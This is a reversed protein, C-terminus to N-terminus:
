DGMGYYFSHLASAEISKMLNRNFYNLYECYNDYAVDPKEQFINLFESRFMNYKRRSQYLWGANLIEVMNNPDEVVNKLINEIKESSDAADIGKKISNVDMMKISGIPIRDDLEKVLLELKDEDSVKDTYKSLWSLEEVKPIIMQLMEDTAIIPTPTTVESDYIPVALLIGHVSIEPLIPLKECRLKWISSYHKIIDNSIGRSTLETEMIKIREIPSPHFTTKRSPDPNLLCFTIWSSFYAPGMIRLAFLDCYLEEFWNETTVIATESYEGDIITSLEDTIELKQYILHGIEHMLSGWMLPVDNLIKPLSLIPSPTLERDIVGARQFTKSLNPYVIDEGFNYADQLAIYIEKIDLRNKIDKSGINDIFINIEPQTAKGRVFMLEPRGSEHSLLFYDILCALGIFGKCCRELVLDSTNDIDAVEKLPQNIYKKASDVELKLIEILPKNRETETFYAEDLFHQIQIIKEVIECAIATSLEKM